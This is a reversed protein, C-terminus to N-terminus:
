QISYEEHEYEAPISFRIRTGEGSHSDIQLASDEGYYLVLRRYVNKIGISQNEDQMRCQELLVQREEETMGIGDDEVLFFLREEWVSVQILLHGTGIKPELGHTIANEILPQLIFNPMVYLSIGEQIEYDVVIKDQFRYEQIFLYDQVSQMEEDVTIFNKNKITARLLDALAIAMESIEDSNRSIAMWSITDLSNYLFHPNIQMKLFEIEAQKQAIELKYVQDVLNKINSAMQNYEMGILGIEDRAKPVVRSDFDGWGFAQMSALLEKTPRTIWRTVHFICIMSIIFTIIGILLVCIAIQVADKTIESRPVGTVLTWGNSMMPGKYYCTKVGDIEYYHNGFDAIQDLELPFMRGNWEPRNSCIIRGTDDVVYAYGTYSPSIDEVIGAFYDVDCEMNMYGITKMTDFDVLLRSLSVNQTEEIFGWVNSGNATYIEDKTHGSRIPIDFSNKVSVVSGDDAIVALTIINSDYLAIPELETEITNKRIQRRYESEEPSKLHVLQNQIVRNTLVNFSIDELMAIRYELNGTAQGTIDSIYSESRKIYTDSFILVSLVVIGVGAVTMLIAFVIIIKSRISFFRNKDAQLM